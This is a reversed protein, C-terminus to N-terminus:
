QGTAPPGLGRTRQFQPGLQDRVAGLHLDDRAIARITRLHRSQQRAHIGSMRQRRDNVRGTHQGVARDRRQRRLTQIRHQPRLHIGGPMQVLQSRIHIQGLEDHERRHRPRETPRTLAVVRRRVREQIRQSLM